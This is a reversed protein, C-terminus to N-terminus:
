FPTINFDFGEKDVVISYFQLKSYKRKGFLCSLIYFNRSKNAVVEQGARCPCVIGGGSHSTWGEYFQSTVTLLSEGNVRLALQICTLIGCKVQIRNM